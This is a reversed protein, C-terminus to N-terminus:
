IIGKKKQLFAISICIITILSIIQSFSFSGIVGRISDDRYFEIVFRFMSYFMLYFYVFTTGEPQRKNLYLGLLVIFVAFEFGAEFLQTPLRNQWEGDISLRYPLSLFGDNIKGYCCGAFFCGIRGFGHFLPIVVALSNAIDEFNTKRWRCSLQVAALFGLLGGWYVIGSNFTSDYMNWNGSEVLNYISKSLIGFLKAGLVLGIFGIVMSPMYIHLIKKTRWFYTLLTVALIAGVFACTSYTSFQVDGIHIYPYM